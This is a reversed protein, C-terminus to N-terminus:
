RSVAPIGSVPRPCVGDLSFAFSLNGPVSIVVKWVTWSVYVGELEELTSRASRCIRTLDGRNGAWMQTSTRLVVAVRTYCHSIGKIAGDLHGFVIQFSPLSPSRALAASVRWIDSNFPGGLDLMHPPQLPSVLLIRENSDALFGRINIAAVPEAYM